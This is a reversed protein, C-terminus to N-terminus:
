PLRPRVKALLGLGILATGLLVLSAPEPVPPPPVSTVNHFAFVLDNYDFDSAEAVTLDEFGILLWDAPNTDIANMATVVAPALVVATRPPDTFFLGASNVTITSGTVIAHATHPDGDPSTSPEADTYTLVGTTVNTFMFPLAENITLGTITQEAGPASTKNNFIPNPAGPATLTLTDTDAASVYAFVVQVSTNTADVGCGVGAGQSIAPPVIPTTNTCVAAQAFQAAIMMGIAAVVAAAPRVWIKGPLIDKM